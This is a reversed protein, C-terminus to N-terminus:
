GKKPNGLRRPTKEPLPLSVSIYNQHAQMCEHTHTHTYTNVEKLKREEGRIRRRKM